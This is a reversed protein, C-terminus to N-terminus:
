TSATTARVPRPTVVATHSVHLETRPCL